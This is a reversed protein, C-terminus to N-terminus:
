GCTHVASAEEEQEEEEEEEEQQQQQQQQDNNLGYRATNDTTQRPSVVCVTTSLRPPGHCSKEWGQLSARTRGTGM